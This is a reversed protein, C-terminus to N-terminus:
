ILGEAQLEKILKEIPYSPESQRKLADQIDEVDEKESTTM